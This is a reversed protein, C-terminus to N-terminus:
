IQGALRKVNELNAQHGKRSAESNDKAEVALRAYFVAGEYDKMRNCINSALRYTLHRADGLEISKLVTIKAEELKQQGFLINAKAIYATLRTEDRSLLEDIVESAADPRGALRLSNALNEKHNCRTLESNDRADVALKAFFIAGEYDQLRNCVNSALRYTGNREDGLEIARLIAAKADQFDQKGFLINAKAVLATLRTEDRSLLEDIVESAADPRGALRLMNALNEKQNDRSVASNDNAEVALKAYFVAGEYDKLRSCINSALQYSLYREDGLELSKLVTTKAQEFKQQGLLINAKVIHATLLSEDSSLLEDIVECAADLKGALRLMNALNEIQNIRSFENNDNADVALRAYYVAGEYDKLRNCFNCALRYTSNSDDGLEISKLIVAKAMRPKNRKELLLCLARRYTKNVKRDVKPITLKNHAFSLLLEKLKGSDKFYYVTAHSVYKIDYGFVNASKFNEKFLQFHVGDLDVPDYIINIEGDYQLAADMRYRWEIKEDYLRWRRDFSESITYQPSLALVAKLNLAKAYLIAAFAGMSSGYGKASSYNENIFIRIKEIENPYINQHWDDCSSQVCIVDFGARLLPDTGGVKSNLAKEDRFSFLVFCEESTTDVDAFYVTISNNEDSFLSLSSNM